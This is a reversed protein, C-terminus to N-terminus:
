GGIYPEYPLSGERTRAFVLTDLVVGDKVVSRRLIGEKVYGAKQLVRMSAPNSSFVPAYLRVLETHEFVAATVAGAAATMIGRGWYDEALWYGIEGSLREVDKRPHVAITGVARGGVEIAYAGEVPPCDAHKELWAHADDMTYPGPFADTLNRRLSPNDAQRQLEPAESRRWPRLLGHPIEISSPFKSM